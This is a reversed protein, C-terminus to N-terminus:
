RRFLRGIREESWDPYHQAVTRVAEKRAAVIHRFRSHDILDRSQLRHRAAVAAILRRAKDRPTDPPSPM